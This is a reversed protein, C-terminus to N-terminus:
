AADLYVMRERTLEAGYAIAARIDDHKLSPYQRLIEDEKCDDAFNDLITSVLVRTGTICAKGHCVTPNVSIRERWNM